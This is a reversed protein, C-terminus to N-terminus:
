IKVKKHSLIAVKPISIIHRYDDRFEFWEGALSVWKDTESVLLGVTLGITEIPLEHKQYPGMSYNQDVWRILSLYKPKIAM